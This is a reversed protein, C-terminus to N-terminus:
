VKISKHIDKNLFNPLDEHMLEFFSRAQPSIHKGKRIVVGYSRKPFYDGLPIVNINEDGHLCIDTVISIGLGMSVYKKIVEWGGAELTVKYPINRQEFAMKVMRWTSLHRPPLILGYPSIDQLSLKTKGSLPHDKPTILVPDFNFIPFYAMDEVREIMSGVAFDAEDARLMSMGDRGTVNRLRLSINPYLKNFEAVFKPLIYLITSEGAAISLTGTDIQGMQASFTENLSDMGEILPLSIDYLIKGAPTIKIKPGRREFLVTDVEAELAKIQLSISPQSLFLKDAAKSISGTQAVHIFARLQKLRNQKNSM